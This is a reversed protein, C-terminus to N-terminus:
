STISGASFVADQERRLRAAEDPTCYAFTVTDRGPVMQGMMWQDVYIVTMACIYGGMTPGERPLLIPTDGSINLAGPVSYGHESMLTSPHRGEVKREEAWGLEPGTLRIGSRDSFVQSRFQATYLQEMGEESFCDPAGNPGPTARMKWNSTYQPILDPKLKRGELSGLDSSPQLLKVEDGKQLGRGEYGGFGGYTTTAKSGLYLPVDIGGAVALCQRFGLSTGSMNGSTFVDGKHVRVAEWLPISAGNLKPGFDAGTVAIVTDVGFEITLFGGATELAAENLPNDVILNAARIAFHDMAGSPSIGEDLHGPRGAWDQVLTEPGSDLIKLM